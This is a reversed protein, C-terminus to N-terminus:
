ELSIRMNQKLLNYLTQNNTITKFLFDLYHKMEDNFEDGIQTNMEKLAQYLIFLEFYSFLFRFKELTYGFEKYMEIDTSFNCLFEYAAKNREKEVFHNCDMSKAYKCVKEWFPVEGYPIYFDYLTEFLKEKSKREKELKKEFFSIVTASM